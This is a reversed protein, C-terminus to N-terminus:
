QTQIVDSKGYLKLFRLWMRDFLVERTNGSVNLTTQAAKYVTSGNLKMCETSGNLKMCETSGNLGWKEYQLYNLKPNM